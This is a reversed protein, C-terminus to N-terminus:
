CEALNQKFFRSYKSIQLKCPKNETTICTTKKMQEVDLPMPVLDKIAQFLPDNCDCYCFMTQYQAWKEPNVQKLRTWYDYTINSMRVDSSYLETAFLQWEELLEQEKHTLPENTTINEALLDESDNTEHEEQREM